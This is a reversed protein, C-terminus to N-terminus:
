EQVILFSRFFVNSFKKDSKRKQNSQYFAMQNKHIVYKCHVISIRYM